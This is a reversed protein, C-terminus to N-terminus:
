ASLEPDRLRMVEAWDTNEANMIALMDHAVPRLEAVRKAREGRQKLQELQRLTWRYREAHRGHEQHIEIYSAAGGLAPLAIAGFEILRGVWGKGGLDGVHLLACTLAGLFAGLIFDRSLRHRIGHQRGRKQHYRIQGDIWDEVILTRLWALDGGELEIVPRCRWLEQVARHYWEQEVIPPRLVDSERAGAVGSSALEALDASGEALGLDREALGIEAPYKADALAHYPLVRLIEALARFTVWREHAHQRKLMQRGAVVTLMLLVELVTLWTSNWLVVRAAAVVVAFAAGCATLNGVRRVEDRFRTAGIDASCFAPAVWNELEATIRDLRDLHESDDANKRLKSAPARLEARNRAVAESAGEPLQFHNFHNFHDLEDFALRVVNWDCDDFYEEIKGPSDTRVVFVPTRQCGADASGDLLRQMLGSAVVVAGTELSGGRAYEIISATGGLGRATLGDWLAIVLDSNDVVEQGVREYREDDSLQSDPSVVPHRLAQRYLKEFELQSEPTKFDDLYRELPFPLPAVLDAEPRKLVARAVLRDAGEALPSVIRYLLPTRDAPFRGAIRDLISEVADELKQVDSLVRHGTVGIRVRFPILDFGDTASGQTDKGIVAGLGPRAKWASGLLVTPQRVAGGLSCCSAM